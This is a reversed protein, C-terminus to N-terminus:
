VRFAGVSAKLREALQNLGRAADLSVALRASTAELGTAIDEMNRAIGNSTSAQERVSLSIEDVGQCAAEVRTIATKLATRTQAMNEQSLHLTNVGRAVSRSVSLANEDLLKTLNEIDVGARGSQEALKRVEDAVVAFGRGSEGARAAEIAANLALLNTQEAIAKVQQTLASISGTNSMFAETTQRIAEIARQVEEINASLQEMSQWGERSGSLSQDSLERIETARDSVTAVSTALEEISCSIAAVADSQERMKDAGDESQQRVTGASQSIMGADRRADSVLRSLNENMNHLARMLLASEDDGEVQLKGTLDGSAVREAAQIALALPQLTRRRLTLTTLVLVLSCLLAISSVSVTIFHAADATLPAFARSNAMMGDMGPRLRAALAVPMPGAQQGSSAIIALMRNVDDIDKRPLDILPGFGLVRLMQQEVGFVENDAQLALQRAATLQSVFKEITTADANRAGNEVNSLGTDLQLALELHNRELFHFTAAKGMLRNGYLTVLAVGVVTGLAMAFQRKLTARGASSVRLGNMNMM